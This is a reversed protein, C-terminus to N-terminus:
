AVISSQCSRGSIKRVQYDKGSIATKDITKWKIEIDGDAGNQRLVSIVADGCSEKVLHGRKEFQFTGPETLILQHRADILTGELTQM